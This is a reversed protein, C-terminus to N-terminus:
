GARAHGHRGAHSGTADAHRAEIADQLRAQFDAVSLDRAVYGPTGLNAINGALVEHRAQTFQVLQELVPITRRGSFARSCADTRRLSLRLRGYLVVWLLCRALVTEKRVQEGM